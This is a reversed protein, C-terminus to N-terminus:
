AAALLADLARTDQELDFEVFEASDAVKVGITMVFRRQSRVLASNNTEDCIVYYDEIKGDVKQALLYSNAQRYARSRSAKSNSEFNVWRMATKLYFSLSLFYRRVQIQGFEGSTDLTINGMVATGYGSVTQVANVKLPYIVDYDEEQVDTVPAVIGLVQADDLGAPAKSVGRTRDVRAMIGQWHGAMPLATKSAVGDTVVMAYVWPYIYAAFSSFRNVTTNVYTNVASVATGNPLDLIALFGKRSEAFEILTQSPSASTVGAISLMGFDAKQKFVYIGTKASSDGVYDADVVAGGDSGASTVGVRTGSTNAPRSDASASSQDTLKIPTRYTENVIDVCYRSSLSSMRLDTWLGITTGSANVVKLDFSLRSVTSNAVDVQGPAPAASAYSIINGNIATVTVTISDVTDTILLTDGIRVQSASTLTASTGAGAAIASALSTLYTSKRTIVFSIANGWTGPSSATVRLTNTPTSDQVTTYAATMDYSSATSPTTYHAARSVYCRSGGNDFFARVSDALYSGSVPDGFQEVFDQYGTCLKVENPVGKQAIGLFGGVSVSPYAPLAVPGKRRERVTIGPSLGTTM